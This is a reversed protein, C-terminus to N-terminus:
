RMGKGLMLAALGGGAKRALFALGNEQLCRLVITVMGLWRGGKGRWYWLCDREVICM